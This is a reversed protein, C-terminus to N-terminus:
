GDNYPIWDFEECNFKYCQKHWFVVPQKKQISKELQEPSIVCFKPTTTAIGMWNIIYAKKMICSTVHNVKLHFVYRHPNCHKIEVKIPRGGNKHLIFDPESSVHKDNAIFEGTNDVGNNEFTYKDTGLTNLYDVYKQMLKQEVLSCHKIDQKFEDETRADRRYKSM